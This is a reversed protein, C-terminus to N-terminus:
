FIRDEVVRNNNSSYNFKNSIRIRIRIKGQDVKNNYILLSFIQKDV